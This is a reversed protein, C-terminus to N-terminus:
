TRRAITIADLAGHRADDGLPRLEVVADPLLRRLAAAYDRRWEINDRSAGEALGHPEALVIGRRAASWTARLVAELDSPSIYALAYCTFIVDISRPPLSLTDARLD